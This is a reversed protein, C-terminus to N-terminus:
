LSKTMLDYSTLEEVTKGTSEIVEIVAQGIKSM